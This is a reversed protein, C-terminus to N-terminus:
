AVAQISSDRWQNEYEAPSLYNLTSHLRQQNYWLLWTLTEDKAQRIPVFRRGHLGEVKLSGFLTETPANDWCNHSSSGGEDFNEDFGNRVADVGHEGVVSDLEGVQRLIALTWGGAEADMGEIPGAMDVSDLVVEGLRVMRPGITLDFSHVSGDLFGGDLAEEVVRV